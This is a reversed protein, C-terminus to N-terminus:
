IMKRKKVLIIVEPILSFSVVIVFLVYRFSNQRIVYYALLGLLIIGMIYYLIKELKIYKISFLLRSIALVLNSIMVSLCAGYVGFPKIFLINGILATIAGFFSSYFFYKTKRVVSFACGFFSASNAFLVSISLLPIYKWALWYAENNTIVKIFFDGFVSIIAILMVQLSFIAMYVINYFKKFGDKNNYEELLSVMLSNIFISFVVVILSPLKNAIAYFGIGDLGVYKEMIPRNSAGLLWWMISNPILPVSYKLLEKISTYSISKIKLYRYSKSCILIVVTSLCNAGGISYVFGMVGHPPILLVAFLALFLTYLVGSLSFLVLKSLGKLFNQLYTQLFSTTLLFFVSWIYQIFVGDFEYFFLKVIFFVLACFCLGLFAIALGSSFYKQKDKDVEQNSYIFIADATCMTVVGLLLSVYTNISDTIGYDGVSLYKTYFPLMIFSILKSGATGIFVIITNISLKKYKNM